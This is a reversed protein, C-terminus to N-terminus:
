WFWFKQLKAMKLSKGFHRVYCSAGGIPLKLSALIHFYAKPPMIIYGIYPAGGIDLFCLVPM